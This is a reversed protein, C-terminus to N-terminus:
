SSAYMISRTLVTHLSTHVAVLQGRGGRRPLAFFLLTSSDFLEIDGLAPKKGRAASQRSPPLFASAQIYGPTPPADHAARM